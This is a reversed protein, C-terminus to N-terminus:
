SKRGAGFCVIATLDYPAEKKVAVMKRVGRTTDKATTPAWENDARRSTPLSTDDSKEEAVRGARDIIRVIRSDSVIENRQLAAARNVHGVRVPSRRRWTHTKIQLWPGLQLSM